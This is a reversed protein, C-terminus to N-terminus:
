AKKPESAPSSAERLLALQEDVYEMRRPPKRKGRHPVAVFVIGHRSDTFQIRPIRAFLEAKKQSQTYERHRVDDGYRSDTGYGVLEWVM